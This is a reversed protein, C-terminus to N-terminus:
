HDRHSTKKARFIGGYHACGAAQELRTRKATSRLSRVNGRNPAYISLFSVPLGSVQLTGIGSLRASTNADPAYFPGM